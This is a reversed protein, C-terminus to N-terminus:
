TRRGVYPLESIRSEGDCDECHGYNFIERLVWAQRDRDWVAWADRRINRGGCDRCVIDITM